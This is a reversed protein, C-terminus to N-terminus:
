KPPSHKETRLFMFTFFLGHIFHTIAATRPRPTYKSRASSLAYKIRSSVIGCSHPFIQRQMEADPPANTEPSTMLPPVPFSSRPQQAPATQANPIRQTFPTHLASAEHVIEVVTITAHQIM